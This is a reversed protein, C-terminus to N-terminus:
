PIVKLETSPPLVLYGYYKAGLLCYVLVYRWRPSAVVKLGVVPVPVVLRGRCAVLGVRRVPVPVPLRLADKTCLLIGRIYCDIVAHAPTRGFV